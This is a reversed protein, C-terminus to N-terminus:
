HQPYDMSVQVRCCALVVQALSESDPAAGWGQMAEYLELAAAPQHKTACGRLVENCLATSPGGEDDAAHIQELLEVQECSLRTLLKCSCYPHRWLSPLQLGRHGIGGGAPGRAQGTGGEEPGAAAAQRLCAAAGSGRLWDVAATPIRWLSQLLQLALRRSLVQRPNKGLDAPRPEVGHNM